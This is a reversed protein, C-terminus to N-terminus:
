KFDFTYSVGIQFSQNLIAEYDENYDGSSEYYYENGFIDVLGQKFRADITIGNPFSYGLGAVLSLDLGIPSETDYDAFNDQILFDISPGVAVFFGKGFTFKNLAGVSLYDLTFKAEKMGDSAPDMDNFDIVDIKAGQRSFSVEPQLTYFRTIKIGLQGGIYFGAMTSADSNTLRSFNAGAQVGPKFKVQANATIGVFGLLAILLLKRM